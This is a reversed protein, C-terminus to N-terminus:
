HNNEQFCESTYLFWIQHEFGNKYFEKTVRLLLTHWEQIISMLDKRISKVTNTQLHDPENVTAAGLVPVVSFLAYM